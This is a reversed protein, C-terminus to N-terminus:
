VFWPVLTMLTLAEPPSITGMVAALILISRRKRIQRSAPSMIEDQICDRHRLVVLSSLITARYIPMSPEKSRRHRAWWDHARGCHERALARCRIRILDAGRNFPNSLRHSSGLFGIVPSTKEIRECGQLLRERENERVVSHRYQKIPPSRRSSIPSRPTSSRLNRGTNLTTAKPARRVM